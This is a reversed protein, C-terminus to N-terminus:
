VHSMKTRDTTDYLPNNKETYSAYPQMEDEVVLSEERGKLKCKRCHYTKLFLISGMITLIILIPSIACSLITGLSNGGQSRQLQIPITWSSSLYFVSCNVTSLNNEALYCTSQVTVTENGQHQQEETTACAGEPAWSIQTTSKGAAAARCVANRQETWATVEPPVLVQLNYSRQLNGDPIVLECTYKGKHSIAVPDIQLAPNQDPRSTWTVRNDSCNNSTKNKDEKYAITCNVKGGLDIKWTALVLHPSSTPCCSLVVKAGVFVTESSHVEASDIKCQKVDVSSNATSSQTIKKLMIDEFEM